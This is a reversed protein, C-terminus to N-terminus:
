NISLTVSLLGEKLGFLETRYMYKFFTFHYSLVAFCQFTKLILGFCCLLLIIWNEFPTFDIQWIFPLQMSNETTKSLVVQEYIRRRWVFWHNGRFLYDVMWQVYMNVTIMFAQLSSSSDVHRHGALSVCMSCSRMFLTVRMIRSNIALTRIFPYFFGTLQFTLQHMSLFKWGGPYHWVVFHVISNLLKFYM